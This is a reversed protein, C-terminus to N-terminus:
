LGSPLGVVGAGRDLDEVCDLSGQTEVESTFLPSAMETATVGETVGRRKPHRISDHAHACSIHHRVALEGGAAVTM